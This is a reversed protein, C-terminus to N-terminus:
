WVGANRLKRKISEGIDKTSQKTDRPQRNGTALKFNGITKVEPDEIDEWWIEEALEKFSEAKLKYQGLEKLEEKEKYKESNRRWNLLHMLYAVIEMLESDYKSSAPDLTKLRRMKDDLRIKILEEPDGIGSFITDEDYVSNGYQRNKKIMKESLIEDWIERIDPVFMKM